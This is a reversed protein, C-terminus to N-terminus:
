YFFLNWVWTTTVLLVIDHHYVVWMKILKYIINSSVQLIKLLNFTQYSIINIVNKNAVALLTGFRPQFRVKSGGVQFENKYLDNYENQSRHHSFSSYQLVLRLSMLWSVDISIGYKLKMTSILRAFLEKQHTSTWHDYQGMIYLLISCQDRLRYLHM